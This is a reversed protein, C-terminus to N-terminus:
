YRGPKWRGPDITAVFVAQFINKWLVMLIIALLGTIAGITDLSQRLATLRV